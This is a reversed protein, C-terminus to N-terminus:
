QELKQKIGQLGAKYLGSLKEHGAADSQDEPPNPGPFSRYFAGKWEITSGGSNNETVSISSGHTNIPFVNVNPEVMMYQMRYKDPMIKILKEKIQEGSELTIVRISDPESGNDSVCDTVDPHWDKIGCFDSIVSWVRDPTANVDLTEVVKQRSPGHAFVLAPMLLLFVAIKKILSKYM